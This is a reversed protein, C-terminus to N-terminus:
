TRTERLLDVGEDDHGNVPVVERRSTASAFWQAFTGPKSLLEAVPEVVNSFVKGFVIVFAQHTANSANPGVELGYAYFLIFSLIFALLWFVAYGICRYLIYEWVIDILSHYHTIQNFLFSIYKCICDLLSYTSLHKYSFIAYSFINEFRSAKNTSTNGCNKGRCNKSTSTSGCNKNTSTSTNGCNKSASGCNKRTSRNTSTSTSGCNKNTSTSGCNKSASGCNKGRCNKGRFIFYM